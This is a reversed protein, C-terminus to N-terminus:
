KARGEWELIADYVAIALAAEVCPVARPVICPDHRGHVELKVDKKESFSISRQEKGISPTPKVATRCILPMGSTIGGLMGGHNNTKTKIKDGDMYFADNNESGRMKAVSFGAGFDVGKVAPIAFLLRAIRNEMGDFMPEGLGAPLGLAACEILGGVSDLDQRADEIEAKMKEGSEVTLTPFTSSQLSKITNETFDDSSFRREEVSGIGEIHAFIEIGRRRLIQMCIGGAICLPATLRGSFHGGGSVNQFGGYKMQATFDAHGPRPVDLLNSYDGSKTNTNEIIATLPSGCITDGLIGCLFKPMDGEKRPTAWPARGPARRNLFDQLVEFDIKEGAPIGELTMGIASAHSEGFISLSLMNQFTSSM